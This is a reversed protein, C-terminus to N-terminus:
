LMDHCKYIDIPHHQQQIDQSCMPRIDSTHIINGNPAAYMDQVFISDKNRHRLDKVAQRELDRCCYYYCYICNWWRVNYFQLSSLFFNYWPFCYALYVFFLFILIVAAVIGFLMGISDNTLTKNFGAADLSAEFQALDLYKSVM